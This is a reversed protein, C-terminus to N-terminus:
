YQLEVITNKKKLSSAWDCFVPYLFFIAFGISTTTNNMGLLMLTSIIMSLNLGYLVNNKKMQIFFPQLVIYINVIGIFMGYLALTDMFYSHQGFGILYNGGFQISNVIIGSIPNHLFANWSAEITWARFFLNAEVM